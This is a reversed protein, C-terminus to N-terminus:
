NSEVEHAVGLSDYPYEHVKLQDFAAAEEALLQRKGIRDGYVILSNKRDPVHHLVERLSLEAWLDQRGCTTSDFTNGVYIVRPMRRVLFSLGTSSSNAPWGVFATSRILLRLFEDDDWVRECLEDFTTEEWTVGPVVEDDDLEKDYAHVQLGLKSFWLAMRGTGCGFDMLSEGPKLLQTLCRRQDPTLRTFM